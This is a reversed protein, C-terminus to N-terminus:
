VCFIVLVVTRVFVMVCVNPVWAESVGCNKKIIIIISTCGLPPPLAAVRFCAGREAKTGRSCRGVSLRALARILGDHCLYGVGTWGRFYVAGRHM